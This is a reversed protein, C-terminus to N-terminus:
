QNSVQTMGTLLRSLYYLWTYHLQLTFMLLSAIMGLYGALLIMKANYLQFVKGVFFGVIVIGAYVFSGLLGLGENDLSLSKQIKL